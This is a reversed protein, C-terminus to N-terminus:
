NQKRKKLGALGMLGSGFLVVAAPIPTPTAEVDDLHYVSQDNLFNFALTSTADAASATFAYKTYGSAVTPDIVPNLAVVQNNWLVSFVNTADKYDNALWFSMTYEQGATTSFAQSLTGATGYTGLQAEYNGGHQTGSNIVLAWNNVTDITWGTFDGTEFDGNVLAAHAAGVQAGMACIAMAAVVIMKRFM